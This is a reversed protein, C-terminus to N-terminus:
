RQLKDKRLVFYGLGVFFAGILFHVVITVWFAVPSETQSFWAEGTRNTTAEITGHVIGVVMWWWVTLGGGVSILGMLRIFILM